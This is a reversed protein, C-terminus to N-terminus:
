AAAPIPRRGRAASSVSPRKDANPGIESSRYRGASGSMPNSRLADSAEVWSVSDAASPPRARPCSITPGSLSRTPRRRGRRTPRAPNATMDIAQASAGPMWASMAARRPCPSHPAAPSTTARATTRSANGSSRMARAKESSISMLPKAGTSAGNSPPTRRCTIDHRPNNQTSASMPAPIPTSVVAANGSVSGGSRLCRPPRRKKAAATWSTDRSRSKPPAVATSARVLAASNVYMESLLKTSCDANPRDGDSNLATNAILETPITMPPRTLPSKNRRNSLKASSPPPSPVIVAAVAISSRAATDPQPRGPRSGGSNTAIPVTPTTRGLAVASASRRWARLAPVAGASSPEICYRAPRGPRVVRRPARRMPSRLPPRSSPSSRCRGAPKSSRAEARAGRAAHDAAM